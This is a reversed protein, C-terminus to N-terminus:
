LDGSERTKSFSNSIQEGLIIILFGTFYAVFDTVEFTRGMIISIVKYNELGLRAVYDFYQLVEIVCAFLFVGFAIKWPAFNLFIRFFCYLLIIVLVDGVFPRIVRDTFFLAICVEIIFIIVSLLLYKLNLM